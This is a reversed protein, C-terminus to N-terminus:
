ILFISNRIEKFTRSRCYQGKVLDFSYEVLDPFSMTSWCCISIQLVVDVKSVFNKRMRQLKFMMGLHFSKKHFNHCLPKAVFCLRKLLSRPGQPPQGIQKSSVSSTWCRKRKQGNTISAQSCLWYIISQVRLIVELFPKAIPNQHKM